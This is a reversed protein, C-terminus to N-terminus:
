PDPTETEPGVVECCHILPSIGGEPPHHAGQWGENLRALSGLRELEQGATGRSLGLLWDLAIM